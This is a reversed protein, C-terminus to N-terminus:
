VIEFTYGSVDPQLHVMASRYSTLQENAQQSLAEQRDAAEKTADTSIRNNILAYATKCFVAQKYLVEASEDDGFLEQSLETLNEYQVAMEKLEKHITIREVKAAHLIGAEKGDGLFHFLSQFESITIEPFFATAPLSGSYSEDKNAVLTVM